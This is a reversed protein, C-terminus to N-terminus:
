HEDPAGYEPVPAEDLRMRYEIWEEDTLMDEFASSMQECIHLGKTSRCRLGAPKTM